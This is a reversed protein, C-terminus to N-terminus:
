MKLPNELAKPPYMFSKGYAQNLVNNYMPLGYGYYSNPYWKYVSGKELLLDHTGRAVRFIWPYLNPYKLWANSPTRYEVGYPKPRFSGRTGYMTQRYTDPDFYRRFNEYTNDLAMVLQNCDFLHQDSNTDAGKTWGIHIHGSGTRAPRNRPVPNFGALYVNMDPNCGLEKVEDPLSKFYEQPITIYPSFDFSYEKPIMKRVEGLVTRINHIFEEETEAPNINFECALGDVQVAGCDVKYPENKTGPLKDHASVFTGKADRLFFEPDAGILVKTM